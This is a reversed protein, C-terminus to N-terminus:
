PVIFLMWIPCVCKSLVLTFTCLVNLIRLLMMHLVREVYLVAAVSYVRFCPKYNYIGQVFAHHHHYYIGQVFCCGGGGM